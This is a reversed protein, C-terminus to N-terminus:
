ISKNHSQLRLSIKLVHMASCVAHGGGTPIPPKNANRHKSMMMMMMMMEKGLMTRDVASFHLQFAPPPVQVIKQVPLSVHHPRSKLRPGLDSLEQLAIAPSRDLATRRQPQSPALWALGVNSPLLVIAAV